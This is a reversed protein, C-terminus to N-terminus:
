PLRAFVFCPRPLPIGIRARRSLLWRLSQSQVITVVNSNVWYLGIASPMFAVTAVAIMECDPDDNRIARRWRKGRNARTKKKFSVRAPKLANLRQNNIPARYAATIAMKLFMM